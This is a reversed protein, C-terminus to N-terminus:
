WEMEKSRKVAFGTLLAMHTDSGGATEQVAGALSRRGGRGRVARGTCHGSQWSVLPGARHESRGLPLMRCAPWEWVPKTLLRTPRKGVGGGGGRRTGSRKM